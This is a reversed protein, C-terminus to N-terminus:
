KTIGGIQLKGMGPVPTEVIDQVGALRMRKVRQLAAVMQEEVTLSTWAHASDVVERIIDVAPKGDVRLPKLKQFYGTEYKYMFVSRAAHSAGFTKICASALACIQEIKNRQERDHDMYVWLAKATTTADKSSM